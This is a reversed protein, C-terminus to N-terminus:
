IFFGYKRITVAKRMVSSKLRNHLSHSTFRERYNEKKTASSILNGPIAGKIQLDYQFNTVNHQDRHRDLLTLSFSSALQLVSSYYCGTERKFIKSQQLVGFSSSFGANGQEEEAKGAKTIHHPASSTQSRCLSDNHLVQLSTQISLTHQHFPSRKWHISVYVIM